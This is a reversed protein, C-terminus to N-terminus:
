HTTVQVQGSPSNRLFASALDSACSSCRRPPPDPGDAPASVPKRAPPPASARRGIGFAQALDPLVLSVARPRYNGSVGNVSLQHLKRANCLGTKMIVPPGIRLCVLGARRLQIRRESRFRTRPLARRRKSDRPWLSIRPWHPPPSWRAPLPTPRARKWLWAVARIDMPVGLSLGPLAESM